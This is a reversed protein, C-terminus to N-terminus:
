ALIRKMKNELHIFLLHFEHVANILNIVMSLTVTIILHM